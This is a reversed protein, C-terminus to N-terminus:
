ILVPLNILHRDNRVMLLLFYGCLMNDKATKSTLCDFQAYKPILDGSNCIKFWVDSDNLSLFFSRMLKKKIWIIMSQNPKPSFWGVSIGVSWSGRLGGVGGLRGGWVWLWYSGKDGLICSRLDSWITKEERENKKEKETREKLLSWHIKM